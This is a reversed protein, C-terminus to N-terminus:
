RCLDLVLAQMAPLPHAGTKLALDTALLRRFGGRLDKGRGARGGTPARGTWRGGGRGRQRRLHWAILGLVRFEEGRRTLTRSLTSLAEDARGAAIANVLAYPVPGATAVVVAAVDEASIVRRKGAYIALKEIEGDLRALDNGIWETLLEAAKPAIQKGRASAREVVWGPLEADDPDSCDIVEGIKAALKALKTTAKWSDVVLMLSATSSPNALYQELRQRHATVFKDADHFIVLRRRALLPATRLEDLVEALEASADFNAVGLEADGEDGFRHIVERRAQQRLYLNHGHLVYVPSAPAPLM